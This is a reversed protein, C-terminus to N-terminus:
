DSVIVKRMWGNGRVIWLKETSPIDFIASGAEKVSSYLLKGAFSYVYITEATHSDVYLKSPTAHVLVGRSAADDLDTSSGKEIIQVFNSWYWMSLYATRTGKPVYLTCNKYDSFDVDVSNLTPPTTWEVEMTTLNSCAYFAMCEIDSVAGPIVVSTMRNCAYFAGNMIKKVSRPIDVSELNACAYFAWEGITTVSNPIEVSTLKHCYAFARDGIKTVRYTKGAYSVDSPIIVDGQYEDTGPSTVEAETVDKNPAYYHIGNAEFAMGQVASVAKQSIYIIASKGSGSITVIGQRVSGTNPDATIKLPETGNGSSPTFRLWTVNASVTWAVNATVVVEQELSANNTNAEFSLNGSSVSIQPVSSHADQTVLILAQNGNNSVTILATREHVTTNAAASVHFYGSGNGSVVDFSLWTVDASVGWATSTTVDIKKATSENSAFTLMTPQASIVPGPAAQTVRIIESIGASTITIVGERASLSNPSATVTLTRNGSGSRQSLTLWADSSITWSTNSTIDISRPASENAAFSIMKPSAGVHPAAAGQTVKVRAVINRSENTITIVGHREAINPNPSATVTLRRDGSGSLPTVSLWTADSSATWTVYATVDVYHAMENSANPVLGNAAFYISDTSVGIPPLIYEEQSVAIAVSKNGHAITIVGTREANRNPEATVTFSEKGATGSDKNFNLWQVNSSVNWSVNADVEVVASSGNTVFSLSTASPIIQVAADQTVPIYVRKAGRTITIKAQRQQVRPNGAAMVIFNGDGNGSSKNFTVWTSDSSVTWAGNAEVAVAKVPSADDTAFSLSQPAVTLHPAAIQSVQISDSVVSNGKTVTITVVGHRETSIENVEALVNFTGDGSGSAPNCRLWAANSSISVTWSGNAEIGVIKAEPANGPENPEFSLTQQSLAIWPLADQSVVISDSATGNVVTIVASRAQNSNAHSQATVTIISDAESGSTKNFTLWAVPTSLSWAGNASIKFNQVAPNAAVFSLTRPSLGVRPAMAQTVSITDNGGASSVIINGKRAARTNTNEAAVVNFTGDGSGRTTSFSLWPVDARVEWDVYAAVTITRTLEVTAAFSLSEQSLSVQPNAHQLVYLTDSVSGTANSISIKGRRTGLTNSQATANFTAAGNGDSAHNITLWSVDVSIRWGINSVVGIVQTLSEGSAFFLSDATFLLRPPAAQTVHISDKLSGRTVIIYAMREVANPNVAATANFTGSGSGSTHDFTIWNDTTAVTWAGNATLSVTHTLSEDVNNAAFLMSDVYLHMQPAANQSVEVVSTKSSRSISLRGSRAAGTNHQATVTISQPGNGYLPVTIWDVDSDIEWDGNADTIALTKALENDAEFSL